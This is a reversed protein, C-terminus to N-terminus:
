IAAIVTLNIFNNENKFVTWSDPQWGYTDQTLADGIAIEAKECELWEFDGAEYYRLMGKASAVPYNDLLNYVCEEFSEGSIKYVEIKKHALLEKLDLTSTEILADDSYFRLIAEYALRNEALEPSQREIMSQAESIKDARM